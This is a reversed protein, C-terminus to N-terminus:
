NKPEFDYSSIQYREALKRRTTNLKLRTTIAERLLPVLSRTVKVFVVSMLKSMPTLNLTVTLTLSLRSLFAALSFPEKCQRYKASLVTRRKSPETLM